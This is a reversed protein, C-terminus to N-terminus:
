DAVRNMATFLAPLENRKLKGNGTRPLASVLVIERPVKYAALKERAASLVQAIDVTAGAAPVVFAAIVSVDARVRVEACAVEAIGPVRALVAEVEQPAVRYGLAKMIDNSRGRHAIYGDADMVGLDGGVFWDGRRVEAGEDPRQWYGLMLGPDTSHVAILGEEGAPVPEVARGVVEHALGQIQRVGVAVTELDCDVPRSPTLQM